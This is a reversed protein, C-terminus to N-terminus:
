RKYIHAEEMRNEYRITLEVIIVQQSSASHIMIEPCLRTEKIIRAHSDWEPLDGSIDWDDCGDLLCKRQNTKESMGQWSKAGGEATFIMANTEPLNTEEKATSIITALEQFVWNHM